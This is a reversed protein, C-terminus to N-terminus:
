ATRDPDWREGGGARRASEAAAYAREVSIRSYDRRAGEDTLYVRAADIVFRRFERSYEPVSNSQILGGILDAILLYRVTTIRALAVAVLRNWSTQMIFRSSQLEVEDDVAARVLRREEEAVGFEDFVQQLATPSRVGLAACARRVAVKWRPNRLMNRRLLLEAMQRGVVLDPFFGAKALEHGFDDIREQPETAEVHELVAVVIPEAENWLRGADTEVIGLTDHLVWDYRATGARVRPVFSEALLRLAPVCLEENACSLNVLLLTGFFQAADSGSSVLEEILGRTAAWDERLVTTLTAMAVYGIVSTVRYRLMRLALARFPSEPALSLRAREGNHAAVCYPFFEFLVDRQCLGGENQVFFLNNDAQSGIAGNWIEIGKREIVGYALRRLPELARAFGRQATLPGIAPGAKARVLARLRQMKEVSKFQSVVAASAFNVLFILGGKARARDFLMRPSFAPVIEDVFAIVQPSGGDENAFHVSFVNGLRELAASADAAGCAGLFARVTEAPIGPWYDVFAGALERQLRPTGRRLAADYLERPPLVERIAFNTVIRRAADRVISAPHEALASLLPVADAFALPEDRRALQAHLWHDLAGGLIPANVSREVIAAARATLEALQAPDACRQADLAGLVDDGGYVAALWYQAYQDHFFRVARGEEEGGFSDREAVVVEEILHTQLLAEYVTIREREDQMYEAFGARAGDGRDKALVDIPLADRVGNVRGPASLRAYLLEGIRRLGRRLDSTFYKARPDDEAVFQQADGLKRQTLRAFLRFYDVEGPVRAPPAGAATSGYTEAILAMMLPLRLLARVGAGLKRYSSPALHYAERYRAYLRARLAEDGFDGLAVADDGFFRGGALPRRAMSRERFRAWTEIRCTAVVRVNRLTEGDVFAVISELLALPGGEGTYENVADVFVVLQTGSEALFRELSQLSVKLRDMGKLAYYSLTAEFSPTRLQRGTLFLAFDGARLRRLYAECLLTSKGLGSQGVLLMGGLPQAFFAAVQAAEPPAVFLTEDYTAFAATEAAARRNGNEDYRNTDLLSVLHDGSLRWLKARLAAPDWRGGDEEPLDRTFSRTRQQFDEVAKILRRLKDTEAAKGSPFTATSALQRFSLKRAPQLEARRYADLAFLDHDDPKTARPAVLESILFPTLDLYDNPRLPVAADLADRRLVYLRQATFREIESRPTSELAFRVRRPGGEGDFALVDATSTTAGVELALAYGVTYGRCLALLRDVVDLFIWGVLLDMAQLYVSPRQNIYRHTLDNRLEQLALLEEDFRRPFLADFGGEGLLPAFVFREDLAHARDLARVVALLAVLLERPLSDDRRKADSQYFRDYLRVAAAFQPAAHQQVADRLRNVACIFVFPAFRLTQLWCDYLQNFAERWRASAALEDGAACAADFAERERMWLHFHEAFPTPMSALVDACITERAALVSEPPATRPSGFLQQLRRGVGAVEDDDSGSLLAIAAHVGLGAM